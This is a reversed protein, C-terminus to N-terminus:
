DPVLGLDKSSLFFFFFTVASWSGLGLKILVNGGGVTTVAKSSERMRPAHAAKPGISRSHQAQNTAASGSM